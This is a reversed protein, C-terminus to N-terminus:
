GHVWLSLAAEVLSSNRLYCLYLHIGLHSTLEITYDLINTEATKITKELPRNVGFLLMSNLSLNKVTVTSLCLVRTNWLCSHPPWELEQDCWASKTGMQRQFHSMGSGLVSVSFFFFRPLDCRSLGWSVLCLRDGNTLCAKCNQHRPSLLYLARTRARHSWLESRLSM